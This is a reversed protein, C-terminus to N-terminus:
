RMAEEAYQRLSRRIPRVTQVFNSVRAPLLMSGAYRCRGPEASIFTHSCLCTMVFSASVPPLTGSLRLVYSFRTARTPESASGIKYRPARFFINSRLLHKAALHPITVPSV